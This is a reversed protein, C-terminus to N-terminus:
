FTVELWDGDGAEGHDDVDWKSCLAFLTPELKRQVLRIAGAVEVADTPLVVRYDVLYRQVELRVTAMMTQLEHAKSRGVSYAALVARVNAGKIADNLYRIKEDFTM